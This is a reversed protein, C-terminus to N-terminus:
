PVIMVTNVITITAYSDIMITITTSDGLVLCTCLVHHSKFNSGVIIHHALEQIKEEFSM